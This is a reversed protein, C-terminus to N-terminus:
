NGSVAARRQIGGIRGSGARKLKTMKDDPIYWVSERIPNLTDAVSRRRIV